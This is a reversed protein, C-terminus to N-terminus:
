FLLKGLRGEFPGSEQPGLVMCGVTSGAEADEGMTAPIGLADNNRFTFSKTKFPMPFIVGPSGLPTQAFGDPQVLLSLTTTGHQVPQIEPAGSVVLSLWGM